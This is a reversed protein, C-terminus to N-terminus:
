CFYNYYYISFIFLFIFCVPFRHSFSRFFSLLYLFVYVHEIKLNQNFVVFEIGAINTKNKTIYFYQLPGIIPETLEELWLVLLSASINATIKEKSKNSLNVNNILLQYSDLFAYKELQYKTRYISDWQENAFVTRLAMRDELQNSLVYVSQLLLLFLKPVTVRQFIAVQDLKVTKYIDDPSEGISLQTSFDVVELKQQAMIEQLNGGFFCRLFPMKPLNQIDTKTLNRIKGKGRWINDYRHLCYSCMKIVKEDRPPTTQTSIISFLFWRFFGELQKSPPFAELMIVIM